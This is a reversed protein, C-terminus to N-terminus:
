PRRQLQEAIPSPRPVSVLITHLSPLPWIQELAAFDRTLSKSRSKRQSRSEDQLSKSQSKRQSRSEDEARVSRLVPTNSPGTRRARESESSFGRLDREIIARARGTLLALAPSRVRVREPVAAVQYANAQLAANALLAREQPGSGGVKRIDGVRALAWQRGNSNRSGRPAGRWGLGCRWWASLGWRLAWVGSAGEM